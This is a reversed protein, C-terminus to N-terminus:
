KAAEVKKLLDPYEGLLIRKAGIFKNGSGNYYTSVLTKIYELKKEDDLNKYADTQINRNLTALLTNDENYGAMGPLKRGSADLTNALEIWRNYQENNLLVGSIRKPPMSVGDGLRMLEKDIGEYKANQVRVPSLWEFPMAPDTSKVEEGWINLAPPVQDSFFPNRAKAKQLATYFGQLMPPLMTPDEGFLGEPPLMTNSATPAMEREVTASASSVTPFVALAASAFKEGFLKALNDFQVEEDSNAIATSLEAIGQLAPFELMYNYTSLVAASALESAVDVGYMMWSKDDPEDTHRGMYYAFDAAMALTGSIPDLRNFSVSKYTGDEQRINITFPKLNMRMMAQKTQPDTPGSGIILIQQDTNVNGDWALSTFYGMVASGVALRSLEADAVAGGAKLNKYLNKHLARLPSRALVQRAINAPTKYFPMFLKVVPHTAGAQLNGLFGSIDNQFTLEKAAEKADRVIDEPETNLIRDYEARGLAFAEEPDKGAELAADYAKHQAHMASKRMAARYGIAKFFEDETILMRGAMRTYIGWANVAAAIVNGDRIEKVVEGSGMQIAKPKRVDIKSVADSAEEKIFAKGAVLVADFFSERIADLQIIGDRIFAREKGGIGVATRARGIAGAAMQEFSRLVMFSTNGVVNVMHTSPASLISNIWSEIIVDMTTARVGNQVFKSKSAADPLALYLEGMYEFDELTTAGFILNDMAELQSARGKEFGLDQALQLARMTRGAESGGASINAYLNRELTVLQAFRTYLQEKEVPDTAARSLLLTEQATRSVKRAAIMGALLNEATEGSGPARLAWYKIAEEMGQSEAMKLLNDYTITGRRAADFQEANADKVRALYEAHTPLDDGMAIEPLNVGDLFEGGLAENIAKIEEDSAPKIIISSGLQQIPEDPLPPLVKKEAQATRRALWEAGKTIFDTKGGVEMLKPMQNEEPKLVPDIIQPAEMEPAVDPTPERFVAEQVTEKAVKEDVMENVRATIDRPPRAM